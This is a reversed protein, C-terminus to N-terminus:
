GQQCIALSMPWVLVVGMVWAAVVGAGISLVLWM